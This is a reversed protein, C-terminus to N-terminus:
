TFFFTTELESFRVQGLNNEWAQSLNELAVFSMASYYVSKSTYFWYLDNKLHKPIWHYVKCKYPCWVTHASVIGEMAWALYEAVQAGSSFFQAGLVLWQNM